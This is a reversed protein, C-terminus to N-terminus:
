NKVLVLLELVESRGTQIMKRDVFGIVHTSTLPLQVTFSYRVM